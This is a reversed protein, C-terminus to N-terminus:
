PIAPPRGMPPLWPNRPMGYGFRSIETEAQRTNKINEITQRQNRLLRSDAEKEREAKNMCRTVQLRQQFTQDAPNIPQGEADLMRCGLEPRPMEEALSFQSSLLATLLVVTVVLGRAIRIKTANRVKLCSSSFQNM